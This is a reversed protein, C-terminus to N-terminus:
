FSAYNNYDKWWELWKHKGRHFDNIDKSAELFGDLEAKAAEVFEELSYEKNEDEYMNHGKSTNSM